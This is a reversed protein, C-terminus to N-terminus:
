RMAVQQLVNYCSIVKKFSKLFKGVLGKVASNKYCRTICQLKNYRTIVAKGIGKFVSKNLLM